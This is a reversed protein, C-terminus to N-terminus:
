EAPQGLQRGTFEGTSSSMSYWYQTGPRFVTLDSRGDGDYDAPLAIDGALGYNYATVDTGNADMAYWIGARFVALDSVGNGDFDANVPQDGAQGFQRYIPISSASPLIYWTGDSPRWAAMDAKGDGDYDGTLVRDGAAGWQVAKFGLVSQQVYWVGTSPRWVAIDTRGDSDYDAAVPVDTPLGFQVSRYGDRSAQIYWTGSAPRYVAADAVGDGDYDGNVIMDGASGYRNTSLSGNATASFTAPDVTVPLGAIGGWASGDPDIAGVPYRTVSSVASADLVVLGSQLDGALVKNMGLYPYVAWAGDYGTPLNNQAFNAGCVM